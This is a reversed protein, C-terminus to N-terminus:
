WGWRPAFYVLALLIVDVVPGGYAAKFDLLTLLLSIVASAVMVPPWWGALLALGVAAVIFGVTALLNLAAFLRMGAPGIDWRGWLLSTKYPPDEWHVLPWYVL